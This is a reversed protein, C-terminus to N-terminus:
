PSPPCSVGELVFGGDPHRVVVRPSLHERALLPFITECQLRLAEERSVDRAVTVTLTDGSSTTSFHTNTVIQPNGEYIERMVRFHASNFLWVFVLVIAVLILLLLRAWGSPRLGSTGLRDWNSPAAPTM